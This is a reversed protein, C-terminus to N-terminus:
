ACTPKHQTCVRHKNCIRSFKGCIIWYDCGGHATGVFADNLHPTAEKRNVSKKVGADERLLAIRGTPNIADVCCSGNTPELVAIKDHQVIFAVGAWQPHQNPLHNM